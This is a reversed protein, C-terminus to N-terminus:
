GSASFASFLGKGCISLYIGYIPLINGCGPYPIPAVPRVMGWNMEFSNM